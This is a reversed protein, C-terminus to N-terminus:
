MPSTVKSTMVFLKLRRNYVTGICISCPTSTSSETFYRDYETKKINEPYIYNPNFKSNFKPNLIQTKPNYPDRPYSISDKYHLKTEM